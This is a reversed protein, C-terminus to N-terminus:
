GFVVCFLHAQAKISKSLHYLDWISMEDLIYGAGAFKTSKSTGAKIMENGYVFWVRWFEVGDWGMYSSSNDLM